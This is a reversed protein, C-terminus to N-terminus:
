HLNQQGATGPPDPTRDEARQRRGMFHHPQIATREGSRADDGIDGVTMRDRPRHLADVRDDMSRRQVGRVDPQHRIRHELLDIHVGGRVQQLRRALGTCPAEHQGAGGREITVRHHGAAAAPDVLVGFGQRAGDVMAALQLCLRQSFSGGRRAEAHAHQAHGAAEGLWRLPHRHEAQVTADVRAVHGARM